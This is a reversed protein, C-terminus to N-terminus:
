WESANSWRLDYISRYTKFYSLIIKEQSNSKKIMCGRFVMMMQSFWMDYVNITTYGNVIEIFYDERGYSDNGRWLRWEMIM